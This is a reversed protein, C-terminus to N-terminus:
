RTGPYIFQHGKSGGVPYWVAIPPPTGAPAEGFKVSDSARLARPREVSRTFALFIHRGDRNSVSVVDGAGGPVVVEFIYTGGPLTVGPLAVTGSFTLYNLRPTGLAYTGSVAAGAVAVAAVAAIVWKRNFM